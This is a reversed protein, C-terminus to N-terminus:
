RAVPPHIRVGLESRERCFQRGLHHLGERGGRVTAVATYRAKM